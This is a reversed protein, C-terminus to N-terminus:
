HSSNLRTSKRDLYDYDAYNGKKAILFLLAFASDKENALTWSCAASYRDEIFGKNGDAAFAEAYKKGSKLYEGNQYLKNAEDILTTYGRNNQCFAINVVM